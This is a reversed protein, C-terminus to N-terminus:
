GVRAVEAHLVVALDDKPVGEEAGKLGQCVVVARQGDHLMQGCVLVQEVLLECVSEDIQGPKADDEIDRAMAQSRQSPSYAHSPSRM